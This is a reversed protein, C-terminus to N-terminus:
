LFGLSLCYDWGNQEISDNIEKLEVSLKVLARSWLKSVADVSRKMRQAIEAFSLEDIGRLQVM